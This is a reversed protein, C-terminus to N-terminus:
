VRPQICCLEGACVLAFLSWMCLWGIACLFPLCCLQLLPVCRTGQHGCGRVIHLWPSQGQWAM